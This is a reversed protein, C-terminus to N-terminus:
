GQVTASVPMFLLLGAEQKEKCKRKIRSGPICEDPEIKKKKKKDKEKELAAERLM